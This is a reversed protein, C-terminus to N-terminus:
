LARVAQEVARAALSASAAEFRLPAGFRVTVRGPRPPWRGKPLVRALGDLCVPVVPVGLEVALLGVGRKFPGIEGSPSRTGEPFLLLSWGQRPLV